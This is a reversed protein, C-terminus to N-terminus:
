LGDGLVQAIMTVRSTMWDRAETTFESMGDFQKSYQLMHPNGDDGAVIVCGEDDRKVTITFLTNKDM